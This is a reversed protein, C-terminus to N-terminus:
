RRKILKALGTSLLYVLPIGAIGAALASLKDNKIGPFLYDPIPSKIISNTKAIFKNDQAVRMLGDPSSAALFSLAALLLSIGLGILVDRTKM